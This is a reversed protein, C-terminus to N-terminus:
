QNIGSTRIFASNISCFLYCLCSVFLLFSEWFFCLRLLNLLFDSLCTYAGTNNLKKFENRFLSLIIPLGRM